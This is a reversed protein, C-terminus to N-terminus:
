FTALEPEAIAGGVGFNWLDLKKLQSLQAAWSRSPATSSMGQTISDGIALWRPSEAAVPEFSAGPSFAWELIETEAYVPLWISFEREKKESNGSQWLIGEGTGDGESFDTIHSIGEVITEIVFAKRSHLGFRFHAHINSTNSRFVLRMGASTRKRIREMDTREFFAAMADPMRQFGIGGKVARVHGGHLSDGLKVLDFSESVM